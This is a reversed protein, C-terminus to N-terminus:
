GKAKSSKVEKSLQLRKADRVYWGEALDAAIAHYLLELCQYEERTLHRRLVALFPAMMLKLIAARVPTYLKFAESPKHNFRLVIGYDVQLRFILRVHVM